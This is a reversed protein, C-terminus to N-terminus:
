SSDGFSDASRVAVMGDKERIDGDSGDAGGRGNRCDCLVGPKGLLGSLAFLRLM